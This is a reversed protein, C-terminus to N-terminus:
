TISMDVWPECQEIEVMLGPQEDGCCYLKQKRVECVQADDIWILGSLADKLSKELNDLDPKSTHWERPMPRKKWRLRGPRPMLFLVRLVIPGELPAGQYATQAAMRATAKFAQVPHKSPTFNMAFARGASQMVRHRQRPQAIPIAPIHFRIMMATKEATITILDPVEFQGGDLDDVTRV